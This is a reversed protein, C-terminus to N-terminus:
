AHAHACAFMVCAWLRLVEATWFLSNLHYSHLLFHTLGEARCGVGGYMVWTGVPNLQIVKLYFRFNDHLAAKSRLIGSSMEEALCVNAHTAANIEGWCYVSQRLGASAPTVESRHHCRRSVWMPNKAESTEEILDTFCWLIFTLQTFNIPIHLLRETLCYVHPKQLVETQFHPFGGWDRNETSLYKHSYFSWRCKNKYNATLTPHDKHIIQKPSARWWGSEGLFFKFIHFSRSFLWLVFHPHLSSLSLLACCHLVDPAGVSSVNSM